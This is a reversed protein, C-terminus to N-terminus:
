DFPGKEGKSIAGSLLFLELGKIVQGAGLVHV